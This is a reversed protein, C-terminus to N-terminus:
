RAKLVAVGNWTSATSVGRATQEHAHTKGEHATVQATVQAPARADHATGKAEIAKAERAKAEDRELARMCHEAALELEDVDIFGLSWLAQVVDRHSDRHLDLLGTGELIDDATEDTLELACTLLHFDPHERTLLLNDAASTALAKMRVVRLALDKGRRVCRFVDHKQWAVSGPEFWHLQNLRSNKVDDTLWYTRHVRLHEAAPLSLLGVRSPTANSPVSSSAGRSPAGRSPRRTAERAQLYAMLADHSTGLPRAPAKVPADLEIAREQALEDNRPRGRRIFPRVPGNSDNVPPVYCAALPRGAPAPPPGPTVGPTPTDRAIARSASTCAERARRRM